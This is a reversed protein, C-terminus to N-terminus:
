HRLAASNRALKIKGSLALRGRSHVADRIVITDALLDHLAAARSNWFACIYSTAFPVFGVGIALLAYSEGFEDSVLFAGILLWTPGYLFWKLAGNRFLLRRASVTEGDSRTIRIGVLRKGLTQGPFGWGPLYLFLLEYAASVAPVAVFVLLLNSVDSHRLQALPQTFAFALAGICGADFIYAAARRRRTALTQRSRVTSSSRTEVAADALRRRYVWRLWILRATALSFVFIATLFIVLIAALSYVDFGYKAVWVIGTAGYVATLAALWLPIVLLCSQCLLDLPAERPSRSDLLRFLNAEIRYIGVASAFHDSAWESRPDRGAADGLNFVMRKLRFAAMPLVAVLWAAVSLIILTALGSTLGRRTSCTEATEKKVCAFSRLADGFQGPSLTLSAGTMKALPKTADRMTLNTTDHKFFSGTPDVRPAAISALLFAVVFVFLLSSILMRRLRAPPLSKEFAEVRKAEAEYSPEGSHLAAEAYYARRLQALRVGVHWVAFFRLLPRARLTPIRSWRNDRRRIWFVLPLADILRFVSRYAELLPRPDPAGRSPM